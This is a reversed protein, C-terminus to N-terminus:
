QDTGNNQEEVAIVRETRMQPVYLKWGITRSGAETEPYFIPDCDRVIWFREDKALQEIAGKCQEILVEKAIELNEGPPVILYGGYLGGDIEVKM